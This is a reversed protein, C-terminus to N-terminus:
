LLMVAVGAATVVVVFNVVSDFQLLLSLKVKMWVTAASRTKWFLPRALVLLVDFGKRLLGSGVVM